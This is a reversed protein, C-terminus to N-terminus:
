MCVNPISGDTVQGTRVTVGIFPGIANASAGAYHAQLVYSGPDLVFRYTSNTAVSQEAVRATPLVALYTGPAVPKWTVTGRFVTVIGAVYTPGHPAPALGSCFAIGGVVAGQGDPLQHPPPRPIPSGCGVGLAVMAAAPLLVTLRSLRTTRV